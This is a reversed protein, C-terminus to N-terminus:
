RQKQLMQQIEGAPVPKGLYFGQVYDAQKNQIMSYQEATEIGEVTVKLGIIKALEIIAEIIQHQRENWPTDSIFTRDIKISDIPLKLLYNLSSYESGFDDLSVKVGLDKVKKLFNISGPFNKMITSETIEFELESCSVKRNELQDRLQQYFSEDLLQRASLNVALSFGNFGMENWLNKQQCAKELVWNDIKHILGSQEAFPIFKRPSIYDQGTKNWRILAELKRIKKRDVDFIPQFFLEFENNNFASNLDEDLKLYNAIERDMAEQYYEINNKQQEKAKNMATESKKLLELATDADEPFYAVGMCFSVQIEHGLVAFNRSFIEKIRRTSSKIFWNKQSLLAFEDGGIRYVKIKKSISKLKQSVVKLLEDGFKFGYYNNIKGFNNLDLLMLVKGSDTKNERIDELLKNKNPLGTLGDYFAQNYITKKSEKLEKLKESLEQKTDLLKDHTIELEQYNESLQNALQKYGSIRKKLALYLLLSTVLVFLLGKYTQVFSITEPDDFIMLVARDSFVIWIGAAIFYILAIKLSDKAPSIQDPRPIDKLKRM